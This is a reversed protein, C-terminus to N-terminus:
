SASKHHAKSTDPCIDRHLHKNGPLQGCSKQECIPSNRDVKVSNDSLQDWNIYEM